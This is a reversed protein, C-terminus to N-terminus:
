TYSTGTLSFTGLNTTTQSSTGQGSTVHAVTVVASGAGAALRGYINYKGAPFTRTYNQWEASSWYGVYHDVVAADNTALDLFRQRPLDGGNPPTQTRTPDAAGARYDTASSGAGSGKHTDIAEVSDLGFYSTNTAYSTYDANDIFLGSNYDFEEAEVVYNTPNFTDFSKSYINFAGTADTVTIVVSYAVNQALNTYSVDLNTSTGATGNTVYLLQSSVNINNLVVSVNTISAAASLSSANFSLKNTAQQLMTGDPYVGSIVPLPALSARVGEVFSASGATGTYFRFDDIFGDFCRGLGKRNGLFLAGTAGFDVTLGPASNSGVLNANATDSGQYIKVSTGDYTAAIFLWKNTPLNQAFTAQGSFLNAGLADIGLQLLANGQFKMSINNGASGFDNASAQDGMVFLRAGTSGTVHLENTSLKIWMTITFSSVSGFGLNANTACAGPGAIGGDAGNVVRSFNLARGAGLVGSGLAGHGDFLAGSNTQMQLPVVVGGLSTDSATTTGPADEFDFRLQNVQAHAVNGSLLCGAFVAIFALIPFSMKTRSLRSPIAPCGLSHHVKLNKM